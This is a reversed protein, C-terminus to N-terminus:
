WVKTGLIDAAERLKEREDDTFHEDRLLSMLIQMRAEKFRDIAKM